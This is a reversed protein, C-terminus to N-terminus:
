RLIGNEKLEKEIERLIEENPVEITHLHLGGTVVSLPGAGSRKLGELFSNIERRSSIMLDARIEGYLPHEVIVDRVRGGNDVIVELEKAVGQRDHSCAITAILMESNGAIESPIIYGQPTAYVETGMARLIGIDGVIVQRSVGLESALATGTIPKTSEALKKRLIERRENTNMKKGEEM